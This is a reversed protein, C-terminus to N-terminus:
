WIRYGEFQKGPPFPPCAEYVLRDRENVTPDFRQMMSYYPNWGSYEGIISAAEKRTPAFTVAVGHTELCPVLTTLNYDYLYDLTAGGLLGYVSPDVQYTAQCLYWNLAEKQDDRCEGIQLGGGSAEYGEFGRATMCEALSDAWEGMNILVIEPDAPRLEDPLGADDWAFDISRDIVAQLERETPGGTPIERTPVCGTLLMAAAVLALIRGKMTGEGVLASHIGRAGGDGGNEGHPL